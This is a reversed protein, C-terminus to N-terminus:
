LGLKTKATTKDIIGSEYSQREAALELACGDKEVLTSEADIKALLNDLDLIEQTDTVDLSTRVETITRKGRAYLYILKDFVHGSIGNTITESDYPKLRDILKSM